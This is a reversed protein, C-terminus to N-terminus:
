FSSALRESTLSWPSFETQELKRLPGFSFAPDMQQGQCWRILKVQFSPLSSGLKTPSIGHIRFEPIRSQTFDIFLPNVAKQAM